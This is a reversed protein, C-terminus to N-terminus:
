LDYTEVIDDTNLSDTHQHRLTRKVESPNEHNRDPVCRLIIAARTRETRVPVGEWTM